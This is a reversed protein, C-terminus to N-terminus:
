LRAFFEGLRERLMREQLMRDFLRLVAILVGFAVVDSLLSALPYRGGLLRALAFGRGGVVAVLAGLSLVLGVWWRGPMASAPWGRRVGLAAAWPALSVAREM